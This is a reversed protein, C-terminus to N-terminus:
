FYRSGDPQYQWKFKAETKCQLADSDYYANTNMILIKGYKNENTKVAWIQNARVPLALFHYNTDPVVALNYFFTQASDYDSFEKVLNFAPRPNAAAFFVGAVYEEETQHALIIIDPMINGSNPVTVTKGSSFLFGNTNHNITVEDSSGAVPDISDCGYVIIIILLLSIIVKNVNVERFYKGYLPKNDRQM